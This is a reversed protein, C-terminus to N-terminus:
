CRTAHGKRNLYKLNLLWEEKDKDKGEGEVGQETSGMQVERSDEPERGKGGKQAPIWVHSKYISARRASEQSRCESEGVSWYWCGAMGEESGCVM